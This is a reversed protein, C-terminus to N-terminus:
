ARLHRGVKQELLDVLDPAMFEFNDPIDLCVIRTDKAAESFASLIAKRHRAEMVFVIDAWELQESTVRVDADPCTGASDVSVDPWSSFIQEATPSRDRNASCVFLVSTM